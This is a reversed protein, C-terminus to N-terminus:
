TNKLDSTPIFDQLDDYDLIPIVLRMEGDKSKGIDVVLRGNKADFM